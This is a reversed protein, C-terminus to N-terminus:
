MQLTVDDLLLDDPTLELMKEKAVKLLESFSMTRYREADSEITKEQTLLSNTVELLTTHKSLIEAVRERDYANNKDFPKITPYPQAIKNETAFENLKNFLSIVGNHARTRNRDLTDWIAQRESPTGEMQRIEKTKEDFNNRHTIYEPIYSFHDAWNAFEKPNSEKLGTIKTITKNYAQADFGGLEDLYLKYADPFNEDGLTPLVIQDYLNKQVTITHKMEATLKNKLNM